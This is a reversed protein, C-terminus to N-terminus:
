WINNKEGLDNLEVLKNVIAYITLGSVSHIDLKASINRRHTNVTHTSLCLKDAIQKNTMGKIVCAIIEKERQSLAEHRKVPEPNHILRSLKEHINESTDYISLVEDYYRTNVADALSTQLAICKLNPNAVEKKIQSLSLTGFFSPNIILIDPRQWTLTRKLQDAEWIESIELHLSHEKKLISFVGRRIIESSEAITVRVPKVM